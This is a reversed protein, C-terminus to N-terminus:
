HPVRLHDGRRVGGADRHHEGSDAMEAVSAPKGGAEAWSRRRARSVSADSCARDISDTPARLTARSQLELRKAGGDHLAAVASGSRRDEDQAQRHVSWIAVVIGGGPNDKSSSLILDADQGPSRGRSGPSVFMGARNTSRAPRQAPSLVRKDSASMKTM